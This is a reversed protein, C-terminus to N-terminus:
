FEEGEKWSMIAWKKRTTFLTGNDLYVVMECVSSCTPQKWLKAIIFLAISMWTYTETYVYTKLKNLYIGLLKVAPDCPALEPSVTLSGELAATIIKCQICKGSPWREM